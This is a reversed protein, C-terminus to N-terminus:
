DRDRIKLIGTVISAGDLGRGWNQWLINPETETLVKIREWVTMRQKEHQVMVRRLGGGVLPRELLQRGMRLADDYPTSPPVSTRSPAEAFPNELTYRRRTM